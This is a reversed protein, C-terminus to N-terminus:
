SLCFCRLLRNYLVLDVRFHREDFLFRVQRGVFTFGKGMELLFGQLHNIIRSELNSKSFEPTEQLGLFELVYPDKIVGDFKKTIIEQTTKNFVVNKEKSLLLREYLSSSVQRQLERKGWHQEIAEKEYFDRENRNTIRMLILYHTWSLKFPFEKNFLAVLPQGKPLESFALWHDSKESNNFTIKSIEVRDQFTIYFQRCDKLTKISFGKSFEATLRKSLEKIVKEGYAAREKGQQQVEVIWAGLIFFTAVQAKNISNAVNSRAERILSISANTLDEFLVVNGLMSNNNM